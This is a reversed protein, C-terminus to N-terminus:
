LRGAGALYGVRLRDAILEKDLGHEQAYKLAGKYAREARDLGRQSLQRLITVHIDELAAPNGRGLERMWPERRSKEFFDPMAKVTAEMTDTLFTQAKDYHEQSDEISDYKENLVRGIEEKIIQKLQTKTIKM